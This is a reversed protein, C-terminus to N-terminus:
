QITKSIWITTYEVKSQNVHNTSAKVDNENSNAILDNDADDLNMKHKLDIDGNGAPTKATQEFMKSLMDMNMDLIDMESDDTLKIENLRELEIDISGEPNEM